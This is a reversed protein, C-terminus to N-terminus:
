ELCNKKPKSTPISNSDPNKLNMLYYFLASMAGFVLFLGIMPMWKFVMIIMALEDGYGSRGGRVGLGSDGINSIVFFILGLFFVLVFWAFRNGSGGSPEEPLKKIPETSQESMPIERTRQDV